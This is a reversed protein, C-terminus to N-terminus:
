LPGMTHHRAPNRLPKRIIPIVGVKKRSGYTRFSSFGAYVIGHTTHQIENLIM